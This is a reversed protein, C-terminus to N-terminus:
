PEALWNSLDRQILDQLKLIDQRYGQILNIRVEPALVPKILNYKLLSRRILERIKAPFFLRLTSRLPNPKILLDQLANSRPFGSRNYRHRVDPVFTPDIDLFAFIQQLVGVTDTKLDDYLHIQIQESSFLDYYRKIQAYYFGLTRYHWFPWPGWRSRIRQEEAVLAQVFDQIPELGVQVYSIFNSYAREVPDRLIAILRVNPIHQQIKQSAIPSYLYLPSSEGVAPCDGAIRFLTRYEGLEKVAHRDVIERDGPGQFHLELTERDLAFFNTENVPCMYIQSHQKLYHYISTTGSKAAGIVLFNPLMM